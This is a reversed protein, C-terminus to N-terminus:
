ACVNAGAIKKKSLIKRAGDSGYYMSVHVTGLGPARAGGDSMVSFTVLHFGVTENESGRDGRKITKSEDYFKIKLVVM